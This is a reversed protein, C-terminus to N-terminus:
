GCWSRRGGDWARALGETILTDGLSRGNRKIVRLKRGYTDEDRGGIFAVEFSGANMLTLLRHKAQLGLELESACKPSSIEPADIDALRIKEGAYRITDGDIVCNQDHLSGCLHFDTSTAVTGSRSESHLFVMFALAGIAAGIVLAIGVLRASPLKGRQTQLRTWIGLRPGLSLVNGLRPGNRSGWPGYRILEAPARKAKSSRPRLSQLSIATLASLGWSFAAAFTFLGGFAIFRMPYFSGKEVIDYAFMAAAFIWGIAAVGFMKRAQRPAPLQWRSKRYHYSQRHGRM